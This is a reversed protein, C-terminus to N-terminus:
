NLFVTGDQQIRVTGKDEGPETTSNLTVRLMGAEGTPQPIVKVLGGDKRYITLTVPAGLGQLMVNSNGQLTRPETDGIVQYTVEAGTNNVLNVNVRGNALALRASAPQRERPLPPQAVSVEPRAPIVQEPNIGRAILQQTFANPPCGQPVVNRTNFPEEYYIRPCPNIGTTRTQPAEGGMGMGPQYPSQTVPPLTAPLLGQAALRRTLTNPPCGRPVLVREDHPKEYFISPCPNVRSNPEPIPQQLPQQLPQQASVAQPIASISMLLGGCIASFLKTSNQLKQSHISM